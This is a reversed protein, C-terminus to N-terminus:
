RGTMHFAPNSVKQYFSKSKGGYGTPVFWVMMSIHYYFLELLHRNQSSLVANEYGLIGNYPNTPERSEFVDEREIM